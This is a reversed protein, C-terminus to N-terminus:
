RAKETIEFARSFEDIRAELDALRQQVDRISRELLLRDMDSADKLAEKLHLDALLAKRLEAHERVAQVLETGTNPPRAPMRRQGSFWELALQSAETQGPLFDVKGSPYGPFLLMGPPIDLAAALVLLEAVSLVSGRHGSDLKAIVTPSVRFGLEATRDSLWAASKGGRAAKIARGVRRVLDTAWKDDENKAVRINHV